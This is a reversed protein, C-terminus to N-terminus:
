KSSKRSIPDGRGGLQWRANAAATCIHAESPTGGATSFASPGVVQRVKRPM